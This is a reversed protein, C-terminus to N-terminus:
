VLVRRVVVPRRVVAPPLVPSVLTSEVPCPPPINIPSVINEALNDTQRDKDSPYKARQLYGRWYKIVCSRYQPNVGLIDIRMGDIISEIIFEDWERLKFEDSPETTPYDPYKQLFWEMFKSIVIHWQPSKTEITKFEGVRTDEKHVYNELAFPNTAVEIHCKPFFKQVQSGRIHPTKLFLQYHLKGSDKGKEEQGEIAWQPPLTQEIIQPSDHTYGTEETLWMTISWRSAKQKPDFRVKSM